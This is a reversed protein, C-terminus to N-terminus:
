PPVHVGPWDLEWPHAQLWSQSALPQVVQAKVPAFSCLRVASLVCRTLCVCGLVEFEPFPSPVPSCGMQLIDWVRSSPLSLSVDGEPFDGWELGSLLSFWCAFIFCFPTDTLARQGARGELAPPKVFPCLSVWFPDFCHGFRLSDKELNKVGVFFRMQMTELARECM